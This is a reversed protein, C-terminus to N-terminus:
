ETNRDLEETVDIFAYPRSWTSFYSKDPLLGYDTGFYRDLIVRFTNVPTIDDYLDASGEDPLYYANLISLRERLDTSYPDEWDLMSGPGHDAQLIIIPPEKSQSLIDALTSQLKRNTFVLQDRYGQVYEDRTLRGDKIVDNGDKLTFQYAPDIQEGDRGFVFPPHPALIHAFVFVPGEVGSAYALHDFTYLIRERQLGYMDYWGSLGLTRGVFPIPTMEVLEGELESPAWRSTLYNDASSIETASWGSAFAVTVYGYRKLFSFVANDRIVDSLPGRRRYETGVRAALDDLYKLNLSSALSLATQCYNARSQEAIHFGEEALYNLFETNDYGYTEQLVDARAYGDLIIYYIDPLAADDDLAVPQMEVTETGREHPGVARARVEYMAISTLSIVVAAGAVVNAINTLDHLSRRTKTFLYTLVALLLASALLLFLRIAVASVGMRALFGEIWDVRGILAKTGEFFNEYSFFLLFFVSIILGAKRTDRLVYGLALWSVVAVCTMVIIPIFIVTVTFQDINHAFIFLIPFVAFLFPHIVVSRSM